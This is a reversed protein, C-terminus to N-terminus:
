QCEQFAGACPGSAAQQFCAPDPSGCIQLVCLSLEQFQAKGADSGENYCGFICTAGFGCDFACKVLEQCSWGDGEVVCTGDDNCWGNPPCTGCLCGDFEGCQKGWCVETCDPGGTCQNQICTEGWPCAGCQCPGVQGCEAFQCLAECLPDTGQCKGDLCQMGEPCDGCWCDEWDGCELGQCLQDCWDPECWAGCQNAAEDVCIGDWTAECCFPDFSCVCAVVDPDDCGPADHPACCDGGSCPGCDVPCTQCGEGIATDCWGDGCQFPEPDCDGYDFEWEPCNFNAGGGPGGGTGNNCQGNGLLWEPRCNGNCDEVQGNQCEGPCPGCDQPCSDCDEGLYEQCYQNGCNDEECDGGDWDHEPCYFNAGFQSQEMDCFGDGIWDAPACSDDCDPIEGPPCMQADCFGSPTCFGGPPCSGCSGGCGDSGCEKGLCDPMCVCAGLYNCVDGGPCFGCQGGCGDPGCVKGVCQPACLCYGHQDCAYGGPCSGCSGGCGDPGCQLGECEPTCSQCDNWEDQCAGGNGIASQWCGESPPQGCTAGICQLTAMWQIQADVSADAWCGQQCEENGGCQWSCQQMEVCTLSTICEGDVCAEDNDCVGCLGGCGNSGCEVWDPCEPECTNVCIGGPNCSAGAPCVGCSSGCGDPGCDKNNCNTQCPGKCQGNECTFGPPCPEPHWNGGPGCVLLVDGDCLTEGPFCGPGICLGGPTCTEQTECLGCSGGCGNGGCEKGACDPVCPGCEMPYTGSPEPKGNTGCDYFQGFEDWGCPGDASCEQTNLEGDQCTMLTNDQCCGIWSIEGCDAMPVCAGDECTEGPPCPMPEGWVGLGDPGIGCEVVMGWQCTTEGAACDGAVCEFGQCHEGDPCSGCSYGPCGSSGCEKGDCAPVCDETCEGNVCASGPLCPMETLVTGDDNCEELTSEDKCTILGPVCIKGEVCVGGICATDSPCPMPASWSSGNDLCQVVANGACAFSGPGCVDPYCLKKDLKCWQPEGCDVDSLCEVCASTEPDCISGAPCPSGDLCSVLCVQDICVSGAPCDESTLCAVCIGKGPDCVQGEPCDGDGDCEQAPICVWKDCIMGDGCHDDLVCDVCVGSFPDCYADPCDADSQCLLPEVTDEEATDGPKTDDIPIVGGGHGGGDPCGATSLIIALAVLFRVRHFTMM